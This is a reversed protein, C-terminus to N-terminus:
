WSATSPSSRPSPARASARRRRDARHRPRSASPSRGARTLISRGAPGPLPRARGFAHFLPLCGLVVDEATLRFLSRVAIESNRALITHTLEAGKPLGTTGSTSLIVATDEDGGLAAPAPEPHDALLGTLSGAAIPVVAVEMAAADPEFRM